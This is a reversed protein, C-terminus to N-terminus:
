NEKGCIAKYSCFKCNEAVETQYFAINKDFIEAILEKLRGLFIDIYNAFDQSTLDFTKRKESLKINPDFSKLYMAKVDYISPVLDYKQFSKKNKVLLYYLFVQFIANRRKSSIPLFLDDIDSFKKNALGTKYDIINLTNEDKDIRDIVGKIGVRFSKNNANIEISTKFSHADELQEIYFPTRKKDYNIIYNIFKLVIEKIILLNGTYEFENDQHIELHQKFAQKLLIELEEEVNELDSKEITKSKKREIIQKYFNEMVLHIILGMELQSFEEEIREPERINAIYKLYFQFPCNLYTNLSSATFYKNARNSTEVFHNLRKLINDNKEIAIDKNEPLELKFNLQRKEIKFGSELELQYLFRSLEGSNSSSGLNDYVIKVNKSRQLLRYFFYAFIADQYKLVPLEFAHRISESILSPPRNLSPLVGENANLLIVNEFDLNRTEILGMIQLGDTSESEFPIRINNIINNILQFIINFSFEIENKENQLIDNLRKIAIYVHYIYETEIDQTNKEKDYKATFLQFLLNLIKVSLDEAKESIIPSFITQLIEFDTKILLNYNVYSLNRSIITDTIDKLEEGYIANIMPHNLVSLVDPYYININKNVASQVKLVYQLLNYLSTNKIPFGMTVNLTQISNPISHLVPFLMNEDPLVVVTNEPNELKGEDNYWSKLLNPIIKAQGIKGQVGVLEINKDFTKFNNPIFKSSEGLIEYNARLFDGAEQIENKHYYVDNDWYFIAKNQKKLYRLIRKQATNLANFGIFIKTNDNLTIENNILKNYAIRYALGEYAISKKLLNATFDEYVPILLNWLKLFMEKERSKKEPSFNIWYQKIIKIQEEELSGYKQDIEHINKINTFIQRADVLYADIENFDHLIIEGLKFFADFDYAFDEDITRFSKYLEFLLSLKDVIQLQSLNSIYRQITYTRPSWMIKDVVEGVTNKLHFGTRKNPYIIEINQLNDGFKKVIDEVTEQLFSVM